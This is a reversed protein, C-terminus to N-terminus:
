TMIEKRMLIINHWLGGKTMCQSMEIKLNRLQQGYIRYWNNLKFIRM